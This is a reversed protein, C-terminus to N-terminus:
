WPALKKNLDVDDVYDLLPYGLNQHLYSQRNGSRSIREQFIRLPVKLNVSKRSTGSISM